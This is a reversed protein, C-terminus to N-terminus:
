EEEKSSTMAEGDETAPHIAQTTVDLEGNRLRVTLGEGVAVKEVEKLTTGDSRRVWAYGRGLVRAPDLLRLRDHRSTLDNQTQQLVGDAMAQVRVAQRILRSEADGLVKGQSGTVLRTVALTIFEGGRELGRSVLSSLRAALGAMGLYEGDVRTQAHSRLWDASELLGRSKEDLASQAFRATEEWATQVHDWGDRARGVLFEAVATPTKFFRHAALDSVSTDIEHGIGTLVPLPCSAVARAIEEQDFWSLDLRSGGGRVLAICDVQLNALAQLAAAVTTFTENGQMRADCFFVRFAWPSSELGEMFDHHAASGESSIVGITLPVEGLPVEKNWQFAGEKELKAVAEKRQQDLKGLTYSPDIEEIIFNVKGHPAYFDAKVRARFVVGDVPEVQGVLKGKAGFLKEVTGRWMIVNLSARQRDGEAQDDVLNFYWHGSRGGVARELGSAEGVIWFSEPFTQELAVKMRDAVEPVTLSEDLPRDGGDKEPPVDWDTFLDKEDSSDLDRGNM